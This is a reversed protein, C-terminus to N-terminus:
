PYARIEAGPFLHEGVKRNTSRLYNDLAERTAETDTPSSRWFNRECSLLKDGTGNDAIAVAPLVSARLPRCHGHLGM